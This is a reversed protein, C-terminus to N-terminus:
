LFEFLRRSAALQFPWMQYSVAFIIASQFKKKRQLSTLTDLINHVLRSMMVYRFLSESLLFVYMYAIHKPNWFIKKSILVQQAIYKNSINQIDNRIISFSTLNTVVSWRLLM